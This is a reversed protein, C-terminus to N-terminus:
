KDEPKARQKNAPARRQKPEVPEGSADDGAPEPEPRPVAGLREAEARNVESGPAAWLWRGSTDGEPVVRTKDETLYWHQTVTITEVPGTDKRTRLYDYQLSM